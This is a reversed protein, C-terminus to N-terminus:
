DLYPHCFCLVHLFIEGPYKQYPFFIGLAISNCCSPPNNTTWLILFNRLEYICTVCVYGSRLQKPINADNCLANQLSYIHMIIRQTPM